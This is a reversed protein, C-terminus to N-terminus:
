RRAAALAQEVAPLHPRLAELQRELEGLANGAQRAPGAGGPGGCGCVLLQEVGLISGVLIDVCLILVPISFSCIYSLEPPLPPRPQLQKKAPPLPFCIEFYPLWGLILRHLSDAMAIGEAARQLSEQTCNWPTGDSRTGGHQASDVDDRLRDLAAQAQALTHEVVHRPDPLSPV